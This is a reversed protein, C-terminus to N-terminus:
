AEAELVGQNERSHVEKIAKHKTNNEGKELLIGESQGQVELKMKGEVLDQISKNPLLLGKFHISVNLGNDRVM